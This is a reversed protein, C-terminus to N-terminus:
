PHSTVVKLVDANARPDAYINLPKYEKVAFERTASPTAIIYTDAIAVREEKLVIPAPLTSKGKLAIRQTQYGMYAIVLTDHLLTPSPIAIQFAGNPDTIAGVNAHQALFVNAAFIPTGEEDVVKGTLTSTQACLFLPAFLLGWLLFINRM